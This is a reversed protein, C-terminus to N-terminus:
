FSVKINNNEVVFEAWKLSNNGLHGQNDDGIQILKNIKFQRTEPSNILHHLKHDVDHCVNVWHIHEKVKGKLRM